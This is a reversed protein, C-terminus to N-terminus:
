TSSCVKLADVFEAAGLERLFVARRPRGEADPLVAVADSWRLPASRLDVGAEEILERQAAAAPAEGPEVGGGPLELGGRWSHVLLAHPVAERCSHHTTTEPAAAVAAAGGLLFAYGKAARSDPLCTSARQLRVLLTFASTVSAAADEASVTSAPVYPNHRSKGPGARPEALLCVPGAICAGSCMAIRRLFAFLPATAM